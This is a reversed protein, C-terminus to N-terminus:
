ELTRRSSLLSDNPFQGLNCDTVYLCLVLRSWYRYVLRIPLVSLFSSIFLSCCVPQNLPIARSKYEAYTRNSDRGPCLVDQCTKTAKRRWEICISPFVESLGRGRGDLDKMLDQSLSEISVCGHGVLHNIYTIRWEDWLEVSHVRAVSLTM